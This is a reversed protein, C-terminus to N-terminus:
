SEGRAQRLSACRALLTASEGSGRARGNVINSLFRSAGLDWPIRLPTHQQSVQM